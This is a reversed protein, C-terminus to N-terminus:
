AVILGAVLVCLVVVLTVFPNPDLNNTFVGRFRVWNNKYEQWSNIFKM